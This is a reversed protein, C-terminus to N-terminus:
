LKGLKLAKNLIRIATEAQGFKGGKKAAKEKLQTWVAHRAETYLARVLAEQESKNRANFDVLRQYFQNDDLKSLLRNQKEEESLGELEQAIAAAEAKKAELAAKLKEDEERKLIEIRLKERRELISRTVAETEFWGYGAATKAGLGFVELGVTLWRKAYDLREAASWRLSHLAFTFHDSGTQPRVSPFTVPNPEETDPAFDAAADGYYEPHHCTLIDLELGPDTNPYAPFFAISGGHSSIGAVGPLALTKRLLETNKSAAWLFDSEKDTWEKDGWGFTLAIQQLMIEPTAFPKVSEFCVDDGNPKAGAQTWERLAFLAARRACGKVASGLIYAVGYKDLCLGANEMVGGAMNLMLRAKLQGFVFQTGRPYFANRLRAKAADQVPLKCGKAFWNQREEKKLEPIAYRDFYLSRNEVALNGLAQRTDNPIFM